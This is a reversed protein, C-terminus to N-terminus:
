GKRAAAGDPSVAFVLLGDRRVLGSRELLAVCSEFASLDSFASMTVAYLVGRPIGAAGHAEIVEYVTAAIKMAAELQAPTPTNM